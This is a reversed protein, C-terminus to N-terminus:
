VTGDDHNEGGEAEALANDPQGSVGMMLNYYRESSFDRNYDVWVELGFKRNIEECAMRRINLHTLRSAEIQGNNSRVEMTNVREAKDINSNDIGLYTMIEAWISRKADLLENTILPPNPTVYQVSEPNFTMDNVIIAPENGSYQRLYNKYSLRQSEPIVAIIPTKQAFLNIDITRDIDALRRAYIYMANFQPKRLYNNWIPVCDAANLTKYFGNFGNVIFKVPNGYMNPNGDVSGALCFYKDFDSEYWFVALGKNFLVQELYWTDIEPPLGEWKYIAMSMETLWDMYFRYQDNNMQASQHYNYGRKKRSM